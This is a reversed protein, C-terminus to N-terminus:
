QGDMNLALLGLESLNFRQVGVTISMSLCFNLVSWQPERISAAVASSQQVATSFHATKDGKKPGPRMVNCIVSESM